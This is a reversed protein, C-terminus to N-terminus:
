GFLFSYTSHLRSSKEEGAYHLTAIGASEAGRIYDDRDDTFFTEGAPIGEKELIYEFFARDPKSLHMHDSLYLRDFHRTVGIERMVSTHDEITNSGMVVRYGRSRLRDIVDLMEGNPEPRFFERIPNGEISIGFRKELHRLYMDSTVVGEFMPFEYKAYDRLFEDHDLGYTSCLEVTFDINRITVNGADFIFLKRDGISRNM